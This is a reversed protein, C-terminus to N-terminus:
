GPRGVLVAPEAPRASWTRYAEILERNLASAQRRLDPAPLGAARVSIGLLGFVSQLVSERRVVLDEYTVDLRPLRTGALWGTWAAHQRRIGTVIQHIEAPDFADATLPRGEPALPPAEDRWWALTTPVRVPEVGPLHAYIGTRSAIAMSVAQAVVDRRSIMIVRVDGRFEPPLLEVPCRLQGSRFLWEVHYHFVKVGFRGGNATLDALRRQYAPWDTARPAAPRSRPDALGWSRLRDHLRSPGYWEDPDGAQGTVHLAHSLLNTGARPTGLVLYGVNGATM